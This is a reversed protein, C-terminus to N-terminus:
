RSLQVSPSTQPLEVNFQLLTTRSARRFRILSQRSSPNPRPFKLYVDPLLSFLLNKKTPNRFVALTISFSEQKTEIWRKVVLSSRKELVFCYVLNSTLPIDPM